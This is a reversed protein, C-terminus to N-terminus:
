SNILIGIVVATDVFLWLSNTIVMPKVNHVIGYALFLISFLIFGIWSIIAVGETNGNLVSIAQPVGTLPYVFAAGM